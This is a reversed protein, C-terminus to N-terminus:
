KDSLRVIRRYGSVETGDDVTIDFQEGADLSRDVERFARQMLRRYRRSSENKKEPDLERVWWLDWPNRRNTPSELVLFYGYPIVIATDLTPRPGRISRRTRKTAHDKLHHTLALQEPWPVHHDHDSTWYWVYRAGMDYALTVALPTIAPDAQGYISVGWNKGFHRAAGRLVAYYYRLMEGATYTRESGTSAQVLKNFEGVQYRGEHVFGAVGGAFQYFATEYRTEWTAFDPQALRMDGFSVGTGALERELAYLGKRYHSRVRKTIVTAADTFYRLTTQLTEDRLMVCAPEDLYMMPGVLNSRYLDAPYSLGRGGRRYFVPQCRVFAETGSALAFLNMGAKIMIRYDEVTWPVYTYNKREPTQPLRHGEADKFTRGTGILLEPNLNLVRVDGWAPWPATTSVYRLTLVHGLYECTATIGQQRPARRVPQPMFYRVFDGWAPVLARGTHVNRYELPPESEGAKLRYRLFTLPTASDALPDRSTVARLQMLPKAEPADDRYIALEWAVTEAGSAAERPGYTIDVVNFPQSKGTEAPLVRYHARTLPQPPAGVALSCLLSLLATFSRM